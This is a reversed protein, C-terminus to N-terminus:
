LELSDDDSGWPDITVGPLSAEFGRECVVDLSEITPHCYRVADSSTITAKNKM